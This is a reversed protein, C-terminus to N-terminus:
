SDTSKMQRDNVKLKACIIIVISKRRWQFCLECSVTNSNNNNFAANLTHPIKRKIAYDISGHLVFCQEAHMHAIPPRYDSFKRKEEGIEHVLM